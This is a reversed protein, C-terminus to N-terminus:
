TAIALNASPCKTWWSEIVAKDTTADATGHATRPTNARAAATPAKTAAACGTLLRTCLCSPGASALWACRTACPARAAPPLPLRGARRVPFLGRDLARQAQWTEVGCRKAAAGVTLITAMHTDGTSTTTHAM